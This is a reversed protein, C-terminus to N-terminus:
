EEHEQKLTKQEEQRTKLNAWLNMGGSAPRAAAREQILSELRGWLPSSDEPFTQRLFLMAYSGVSRRALDVQARLKMIEEETARKMREDSLLQVSKRLFGLRAQKTMFDKIQSAKKDGFRAALPKLIDDISEMRVVVAAEGSTVRDTMGLSEELWIKGTKLGRKIVYSIVGASALGCVAAYLLLLGSEVRTVLNNFGVHIFMALLLGMAAVRLRRAPGKEFKAQGLFIGLLSTAAAHILNTSIVRSIALFLGSEQAAQLYQLNEAIAFGIGAAFGYVAGEVFYTFKPRSVLYWLILGKLIEEAIPASYRIVDMRELWGQLIITRNIQSALLFAVVGALFSILITTFQGTKYFDLKYILGLSVVPIFIAVLYASILLLM